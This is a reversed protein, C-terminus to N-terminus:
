KYANNKNEKQNWVLNQEKYPIIYTTDIKINEGFSKRNRYIQDVKMEIQQTKEILIRHESENSLQDAKSSLIKNNEQIINWMKEQLESKNMEENKVVQIDTGISNITLTLWTFFTILLPIIFWLLKNKYSSLTEKTM